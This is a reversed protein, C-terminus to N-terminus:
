LHVCNKNSNKVASYGCMQFYLLAALRCPLPYIFDLDMWSDKFSHCKVCAAVLM